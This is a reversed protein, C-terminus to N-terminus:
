EINVSAGLLEANLDSVAEEYEELTMKSCYEGCECNCGERRCNGTCDHDCSPHRYEAIREQKKRAESEPAGVAIKGNPLYNM